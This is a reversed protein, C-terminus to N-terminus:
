IWEPELLGWLGLGSTLFYPFSFNKDKNLSLKEWLANQLINTGHPGTM